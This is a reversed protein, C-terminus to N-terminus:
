IGAMIVHGPDRRRSKVIAFGQRKAAQRLRNQRVKEATTMAM